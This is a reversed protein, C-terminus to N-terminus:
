SPPTTAAALRSLAVRNPLGTKAMLSSIHREVTRPSLHLRDAIERNGPRDVLYRLVEYERVTVGASRLRLPIDAIGDRHQTVKEGTSRLM